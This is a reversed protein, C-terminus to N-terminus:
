VPLAGGAWPLTTWETPSTGRMAYIGSWGAAANAIILDDQGDNNFDSAGVPMAGGMYPLTTWETPSTGRM